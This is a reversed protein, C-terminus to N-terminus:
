FSFSDFIDKDFLEQETNFPVRSQSTDGNNFTEIEQWVNGQDKDLHLLESLELKEQSDHEKDGQLQVLDESSFKEEEEGSISPVEPAGVVLSVEKVDTGGVDKKVNGKKSSNSVKKNKEKKKKNIRNSKPRTKDLRVSVARVRSPDTLDLPQDQHDEPSPLPDGGAAGTGESQLEERRSEDVLLRQVLSETSEKLQQTGIEEGKWQLTVEEDSQIGRCRRMPNRRTVVGGCVPVCDINGTPGVDELVPDSVRCAAKKKKQRRYVKHTALDLRMGLYLDEPLDLDIRTESEPCSSPLVSVLVPIRPAPKKQRSYVKQSKSALSWLVSQDESSDDGGHCKMKSDDITNVDGEEGMKGELPLAERDHDDVKRTEESPNMDLRRVKKELSEGGDQETNKEKKRKRSKRVIVM